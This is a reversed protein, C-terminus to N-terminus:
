HYLRRTIWSARMAEEAESPGAPAPPPTVEAIEEEAPVVQEGLAEEPVTGEFAPEEPLAVEPAAGDPRFTMIHEALAEIQEPSYAASFGPMLPSKGTAQGGRTIVDIVSARDRTQWFEASAFTAPRPDLSAAAPGDGGGQMGHCAACVSEFETQAVFPGDDVIGAEGSAAMAAVNVWQHGEHKM